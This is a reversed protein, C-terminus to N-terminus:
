ANDHEVETLIKVKDIHVYEWKCFQTCEVYIMGDKKHKFPAPRKCFPCEITGDSDKM